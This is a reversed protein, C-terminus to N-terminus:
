PKREQPQNRLAILLVLGLVYLITTLAKHKAMWPWVCVIALKELRDELDKIKPVHIFKEAVIKEMM